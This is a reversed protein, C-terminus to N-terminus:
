RGGERAQRRLLEGLERLEDAPPAPQPLPQAGHVPAGPGGPATPTVPAGLPVTPTTPPGPQAPQAPVAYPAAPHGFATQAYPALAYVGTPATPAIPTIGGPPALPVPAGVPAPWFSRRDMVLYHVPAGLWLAAMAVMGVTDATNQEKGGNGLVACVLMTAFLGGFLAAGVVDYGRRRRAALLFSPLMGLVGVTLLPALM